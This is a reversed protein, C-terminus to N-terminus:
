NEKVIEIIKDRSYIKEKVSEFTEGFHFVLRTESEPSEKEWGLAVINEMADFMTFYDSNNALDLEIDTTKLIAVGIIEEIPPPTPNGSSAPNVDWDDGINIEVNKSFLFEYTYEGKYNRNLSNINTLVM